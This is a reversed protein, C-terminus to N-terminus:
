AAPTVREIQAREVILRVVKEELLRERLGGLADARLIAERVDAASRGEGRAIRAIERDVEQASVTIAEARAIASLLLTRRVRREARPRLEARLKATKADRDGIIMPDVDEQRAEVGELLQDVLFEPVDFRHADILREVAEHAMRERARAEEVLALRRRIEEKLADLTEFRSVSEGVRTEVKQALADDIPPLSKERVERVVLRVRATEPPEVAGEGRRREVVADREDGASAGDIARAFEPVLSDDGVLVPLGRTWKDAPKGEAGLLAYDVVVLDGPAAPREVPTLDANRERISDLNEQVAAESVPEIRMMLKLGTYGNPEIRPGVRVRAQFSLPASEEFAVHEFEPESIPVLREQELAEHYVRPVVRELVEQEISKGYRARILHRPAKGRRFGPLTVRGSVERYIAELDDSLDAPPIEVTLVREWKDPEQIAVKM